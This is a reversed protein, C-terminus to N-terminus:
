FAYPVANVAGLAYWAGFALSVAGLVPAVAIFRRLVPERTIAYGLTTSAVSMSVATCAAFVVLAALAEVHDPIAALLLVGVGASGGMGHVLGIGYASWASRARGGGHQHRSGPAASLEGRRCRVLLRLALGMILVGVALEAVQQVTEPLYGRFLVIPVGFAFLTTAHGLGWAMGLRGARRASRRDDGAVLTGVATLHDPDTAHRLGLLVAVAVVLLFAEGSGLAAIREDLGFM